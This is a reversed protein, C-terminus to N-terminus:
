ENKKDLKLKVVVERGKQSGSIAVKESATNGSEAYLEYDLRADLWTFSFQGDRNTPKMKFMRGRVDKLCVRASAVPREKEDVVTGRITFWRAHSKQNLAAGISAGLVVILAVAARSGSRM